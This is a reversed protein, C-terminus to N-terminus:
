NIITVSTISVKMSIYLSERGGMSFGMIATNDKGTKVSYHSEIYPMLDNTLENIFNDYAANNEENMGSCSDQKESAYIYPFVAIM